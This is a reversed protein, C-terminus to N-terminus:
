KPMTSTGPSLFGSHGTAEGNDAKAGARGLQHRREGGLRKGGRGIEDAIRGIKGTHRLTGALAAVGGVIALLKGAGALRELKGSLALGDRDDGGAIGAHEGHRARDELRDLRAAGAQFSMSMVTTGPTEAMSAAAARMPAGSPWSKQTM